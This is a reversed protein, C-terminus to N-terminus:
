WYKKVKQLSCMRIVCHQATSCCKKCYGDHNADRGFTHVTERLNEHVMLVSVDKGQMCLLLAILRPENLYLVM